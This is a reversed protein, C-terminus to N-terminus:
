HWWLQSQASWGAGYDGQGGYARMQKTVQAPGKERSGMELPSVVPFQQVDGSSGLEDRTM